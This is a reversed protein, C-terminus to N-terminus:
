KIQKKISMVKRSDNLHTTTFPLSHTLSILYDFSVKQYYFKLRQNIWSNLFVCIDQDGTLPFRAETGPYWLRHVTRRNVAQSQQNGVRAMDTVALQARTLPPPNDGWCGWGMVALLQIRTASFSRTCDRRGNLTM